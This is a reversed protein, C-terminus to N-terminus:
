VAKPARFNEFITKLPLNVRRFRNGRRERIDLDLM